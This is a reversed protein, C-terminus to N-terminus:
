LRTQGTGRVIYKYTTLEELGMPGRAHLKETSIGIEAGMGFEGGDTFRTSANVYVAASDVEETFQKQATKDETIIADSHHSGHQNIHDIAQQLDDIVKVSLILDLYETDWDEETAAKVSSSIKQVTQDGRIEVGKEIMAQVLMPLFKAAINKHVLLTEMANCVSPRQCKANIAIKLAMELNATQDVFTHCLGKDHKIIPVRAMEEVASILKLGGRPIVLDVKGVMRVLEKVAAYDTTPILQLAHEPMKAKRGGASLAAAIAQNSHLAESGGRAIVANGTKLCLAAVDATVNPRAEYIIGIVGFPFRVKQIDLGDPRKYEKIIEGIPDNLKIVQQLGAIMGDIRSDTLELRDLIAAAIGANKAAQMDKANAAKITARQLELEEAMAALIANKEATSLKALQQAARKAQEGIQLMTEHINM